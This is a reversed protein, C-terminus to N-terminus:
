RANPNVQKELRQLKEDQERISQRLQRMEEEMMEMSRSDGEKPSQSSLSSDAKAGESHKFGTTPLPASAMYKSLLDLNIDLTPPISGNSSQSSETAENLLAVKPYFGLSWQKPRRFSYSPSSLLPKPSPRLHFQTLTLHIVSESAYLSGATQETSSSNENTLQFRIEEESTAQTFASALLPTLFDVDEATFVQTPEAEGTLVSEITTKQEEVYVGQLLQNMLKPEITTPHVARFSPDPFVKLSITGRPSEHLVTEVRPVSLCGSSFVIATLM